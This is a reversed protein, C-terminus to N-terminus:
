YKGPWAHERTCERVQKEYQIKDERFLKALEPEVPRDFNPAALLSCVSLVTTRLTLAPSWQDQLIDLSVKGGEREINPHCIPTIFRVKPPRFPYHAGFELEIKFVGGAYPTGEPGLLEAHAISIDGVPSISLVHSAIYSKAERPEAVMRLEKHMRRADLGKHNTLTEPLAVGADVQALAQQQHLEIMRLELRGGEEGRVAASKRWSSAVDTLATRARERWAQSVGKLTMMTRVDVARLCDFIVAEDELELSLSRALKPAGPALAGGPAEANKGVLKRTPPTLVSESLATQEQQEDLDAAISFEDRIQQATKGRLRSALHLVLQLELHAVDFFRAARHLAFFDAM